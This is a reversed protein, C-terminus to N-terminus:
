QGVKSMLDGAEKHVKEAEERVIEDLNPIKEALFTFMVEPDPNEQILKDLINQDDESLIDMARTMVEMYIIAGFQMYVEEQEEKPLSDIGLIQVIDNKIKTNM